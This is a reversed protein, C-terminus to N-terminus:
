WRLWVYLVSWTSMCTSHFECVSQGLTYELYAARKINMKLQIHVIIIRNGDVQAM